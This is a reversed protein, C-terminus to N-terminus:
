AARLFNSSDSVFPWSNFPLAGSLTFYFGLQLKNKHIRNQINERHAVESAKYNQM